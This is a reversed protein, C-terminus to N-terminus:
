KVEIAFGMKELESQVKKKHDGQLEIRGNKVTGGAACLTKLRKALTELDIDKGAPCEVITVMKGYRRKDTFVSLPHQERALVECTCIDKPQGCTKCIEVM